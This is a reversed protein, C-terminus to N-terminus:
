PIPIAKEQKLAFITESLYQGSVQKNEFSMVTNTTIVESPPPNLTAGYLAAYQMYTNVNLDSPQLNRENEGTPTFMPTKPMDIKLGKKTADNTMTTMAWIHYAAPNPIMFEFMLRRGYNVLKADYVKNVWRYIGSVHDGSTNSLVHRNTEEFEETTKMTRESRVRQVIRQRAREITEHSYREASSQADSSATGLSFDLHAGISTSPGLQASMTAGTSLNMNEQHMKSIEKDMENRDTTTTDRENEEEHESMQYMSTETRSLRRTTREKREGQLVNEIHAVEGPAYCNLEQEVRMLDGVRVMTPRYPSNLKTFSVRAMITADGKDTNTDQAFKEQPFPATDPTWVAGGYVVVSETPLVTLAAIQGSLRNQIKEVQQVLFAHRSGPKMKLKMFIDQTEQSFDDFNAVIGVQEQLAVQEKMKDQQEPSMCGDKPNIAVYNQQFHELHADHWDSLEEIANQYPLLEKHLSAIKKANEAKKNEASFDPKFSNKKPRPLPFIDSPLTLATEDERLLLNDAIVTLLRPNNGLITMVMYNDWLQATSEASDDLATISDEDNLASTSKMFDAAVQRMATIQEEADNSSDKASLLDIHLPTKAVMRNAMRNATSKGQGDQPPRVVVFKFVTSPIVTPELM